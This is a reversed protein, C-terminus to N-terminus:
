KNLKLVAGVKNLLEAVSFPKEILGKVVSIKNFDGNSKQFVESAIPLASILIVPINKLKEDAAMIRCLDVGNTGPMMFDILILDYHNNNMEELGEKASLSTTVEYATNLSLAAKITIGISADNDVVLIKM